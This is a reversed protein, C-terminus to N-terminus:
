AVEAASNLGAIWNNYAAVGHTACGKNICPDYLRCGGCPDIKPTRGKGEWRQACVAKVAESKKLLESM